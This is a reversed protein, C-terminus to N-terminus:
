GLRPGDVERTSLPEVPEPPPGATTAGALARSRPAGVGGMAAPLVRRWVPGPAGPTLLAQVRGLTVDLVLALAAIVIATGVVQDYLQQNNGAEIPLGLTADGVFSALTATAFVQVAATRVGAAILPLALPLEVKGLVQLPRMGMGRAADITDEDVGATATYTNTLIPPLGFIALAIVATRERVGFASIRSLLILIGVVPVARGLNALATVLPGGKRVHGLALGIPVAVVLALALSEASIILQRAALHLLGDSGTWHSGDGLWGFGDGITSTPRM